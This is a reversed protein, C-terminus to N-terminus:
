SRLSGESMYIEQGSVEVTYRTSGDIRRTRMETIVGMRGNWPTGPAYVRVEDGIKGGSRTPIAGGEDRERERAQHGSGRDSTGRRGCTRM